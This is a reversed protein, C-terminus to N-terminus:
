RLRWCHCIMCHLRNETLGAAKAVEVAIGDEGDEITEGLQLCNFGAIEIEAIM